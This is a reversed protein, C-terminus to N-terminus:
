ALIGGYNGSFVAPLDGRGNLLAVVEACERKLGGQSLDLVYYDLGIRALDSLYPLLSFVAHSRVYLAEPRRDLYYRENRSSVLTRHGQFHPADLRATFLPPRGHLLLGVRLRIGSNQGSTDNAAAYHALAASLTDRDTELSFQVGAMGLSAATHLAPSNLLNCSYDGYLELERDPSASMEDTFLASQGLHSIQFRHAGQARLQVIAQRYWSLQEQHIIPPLAWILPPHRHRQGPRYQALTDANLEIVVTAVEFPFRYGIGSLNALRVWWQPRGARARTGTSKKRTGPRKFAIGSPKEEAIGLAALITEMAAPTEEPLRCSTVRRQLDRSCTEGGGTDVRFLVGHQLSRPNDTKVGAPVMIVTQGPRAQNVQKGHMEMNRLTFSKRDGTRQNYLRLRDGSAVARQLQVHLGVTTGKGQRGKDEVRIVKGVVEGSSGSLRPVILSEEQGSVLFGAAQKRGLARDLAQRAAIMMNRGQEPEADLADLALRYGRVAHRVYEVSKLRGEIKLSTVGAARIATLQEFGCLDNMSFLYGGGKGASTVAAKKKGSPLWDYRRRCPQVCQGRLSSKGGHLSSFRCLGSYSFCLAGHIFIELAIDTQEHITRMEEIRLERALVVRKFGIGALFNAGLSNNVTMLTSAHLSLGSFFRRVLHVIGFDQVILADPRIRELAALMRLAAPVESEKVLSNMAVYLKKGQERAYETMAAIEALSFDRALARANFGPAGIYVADAGEYLAAEFAPLTGAPALLELSPM